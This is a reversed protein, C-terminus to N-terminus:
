SRRRWGWASGTVDHASPLRDSGVRYGLATLCHLVNPGQLTFFYHTRNDSAQFGVGSALTGHTAFVEVIEGFAYDVSRRDKPIWPAWTGLSLGEDSAQLTAFGITVNLRGFGVSPDEISMGGIFRKAEGTAVM